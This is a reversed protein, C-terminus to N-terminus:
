PYDQFGPTPRKCLCIKQFLLGLFISPVQQRYAGAGEEDGDRSVSLLAIVVVM